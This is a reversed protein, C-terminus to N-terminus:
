RRKEKNKYKNKLKRYEPDTKKNVKKGLRKLKNSIHIQGLSKYKYDKGFIHQGWKM